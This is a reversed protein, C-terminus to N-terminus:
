HQRARGKGERSTIEGHNNGAVPKATPPKVATASGTYLQWVQEATLPHNFVAVEDIRGCFLGPNGPEHGSGLDPVRCGISLATPRAPRFGATHCRPWRSATTICGCHRETPWSPWTTGDAAASRNKRERGLRDSWGGDRDHVSAMLDQEDCIGLFFQGFNGKYNPNSGGTRSSGRGRTM